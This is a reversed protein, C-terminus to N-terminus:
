LDINEIVHRHISIEKDEHIKEHTREHIKELQENLHFLHSQLLSVAAGVAGHTTAPVSDGYRTVGDVDLSDLEPIISGHVELSVGYSTVLM